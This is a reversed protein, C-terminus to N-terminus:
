QKNPSVTFVADLISVLPSTCSVNKIDIFFRSYALQVLAIYNERNCYNTPM